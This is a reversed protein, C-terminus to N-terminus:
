TRTSRSFYACDCLRQRCVGTGPAITALAIRTLNVADHAPPLGHLLCRIRGSSAEPGM